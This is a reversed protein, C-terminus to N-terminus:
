DECTLLWNLRRAAVINFCDIDTKREKFHLVNGLFLSLLFCLSLWKKYTMLPREGALWFWATELIVVKWGLDHKWEWWCGGRREASRLPQLDEWISESGLAGHGLSWVSGAAGARRWRHTGFLCCAPSRPPPSAASWPPPSCPGCLAAASSGTPPSQPRPSSRPRPRCRPTGEPGSSVEPCGPPRAPWVPSGGLASCTVVAAEESQSLRMKFFFKFCFSSM